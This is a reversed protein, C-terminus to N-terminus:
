YNNCSFYKIAKSEQKSLEKATSLIYHHIEKVQQESLRDSFAPMFCTKAKGDLCLHSPHFAQELMSVDGQRVGEMHLNLVKRVNELETSPM